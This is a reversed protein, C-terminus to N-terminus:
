DRISFVENIINNIINGQSDEPNPDSCDLNVKLEKIKQLLIIRCKPCYKIMKIRWIVSSGIINRM